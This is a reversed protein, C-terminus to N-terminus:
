IVSGFLQMCKKNNVKITSQKMDSYTKVGRRSVKDWFPKRELHDVLHHNLFTDRQYTTKEVFDTMDKQVVDSAVQGTVINILAEPVKGLDFPNQFIDEVM